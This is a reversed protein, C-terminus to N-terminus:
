RRMQYEYGKLSKIPDVQSGTLGFLYGLDNFIKASGEQQWKYPGVDRTYFGRSDNSLVYYGDYAFDKYKDVIPGLTPAGGSYILNVYERPNLFTLAEQKTGLASVLSHNILWGGANFDDSLLDGSRERMKEFRDEDDPDYGFLYAIMLSLMGIVATHAFAKKGAYKEEDTLFFSGNSLRSVLNRLLKASELMYGNNIDGTRVNYRSPSWNNVFMRTFFRRLSSFMRWLAYRDLMSKDIKGYAGQLANSTEQVRNRTKKFEEGGVDYSSDIGAKLKLIGDSGKEWADLYSIYNTKGNIIQPVKQHIMMGAFLSLTGENELWKRPSLLVSNAKKSGQGLVLFSDALDTGVSRGFETGFKEEFRGKIPDFVEILQLNVSKESPNANYVNASIDSMMKFAEVQGLAYSRKNLYKQGASEIIMQTVAGGFNKIASPFINMAFLGFVAQSQLSDILKQASSSESLLGVRTKGKFEREIFSNIAEARLNKGKKNVYTKINNTVWNYSNIKSLDKIGNEPNNVVKQLAQAIPNLEILKKQHELSYMYKLMSYPVNLSVQDVDLKYLGQVPISSIEEDFIDARVLNFQENYNIGQEFDDKASTISDKISKIAGRVKKASDNLTSGVLESKFKRFRPIDLWIKSYKTKNEQFLLHYKVMVDLAKAKEPSNKKLDFYAKNVYLDDKAGEEVTRPLWNGRNDIHKGVKLSVKSTAKDYGTRYQKKVSRRYFDNKPIRRISVDTADGSYPDIDKYTYSNYDEASAPITVNWVYIPSYVKEMMKSESNYVEKVIHNALYWEKFEANEKLYKAIFGPKLFKDANAKNIETTAFQALKEPDIREIYSNIVNIYDDTPEKSQMSALESYLKKLAIQTLQDLSNEGRITNLETFEAKELASATKSKIKTSLDIYREFQAPSLGSFGALNNQSDLIEQQLEKIRKLRNESMESGVPQGDDNRFGIVIDIIEEWKKGIDLRKSVNVPLKDTITKIKDIIQQKRKYFDENISVRTNDTLWQDVLEKFEEPNASLGQDLLDQKYQDLRYQFLGTIEKWEYFKRSEDRYKKEIKATELDDGAKITGSEDRLSALQSYKKWLLKKQEFAEDETFEDFVRRDIDAIEALINQKREYAIRGLESDYIQEKAYFEPVYEDYMYDRYFQRVVQNLQRAKDLDNVRKAEEIDFQLRDIVAQYGKWPNLFVLKSFEEAEGNNNRTVVTDEYVLDKMLDTINKDSYGADKLVPLLESIFSDKNAKSKLEVDTYANDVYVAFSSIIPDPSSAFSEVYASISNVDGRMGSLYDDITARNLKLRDWEEQTKKIEKPSANNDRLTKLKTEFHSDVNKALPSLVDELVGGVGRKYISNIIRDAQKTKESIRSFLQFLSSDTRLGADSLGNISEEMIKSWNRVLLDYYFTNSIVEKTDSMKNLNNLQDIIRNMLVDTQITTRVLSTIQKERKDLEDKFKKVKDDVTTTEATRLDSVIDQLITRGSENKIAEVFDSYNKNTRIRSLLSGANTFYRNVVKVLVDNDVQQLDNYMTQNSRMYQVVDDPTIIQTTLVFTDGLLMNSLEDITTTESLKDLKIKDGYLKRMLQKIAYIINTIFKKFPNSNQVNNVKNVAATELARVLVEEQFLQDTGDLEPYLLEVKSLTEAGEVSSIYQNYLNNFLTPNEIALSRVVPHSFEHLVTNLKFGGEVFYINNNYFFASEGNWPNTTDKTLDTAEQASIMQYGIGVQDVLKNALKTIAEQAKVNEQQAVDPFLSNFFDLQDDFDERYFSVSGDPIDKTPIIDSSSTLKADYSGNEKRKGDVVDFLFDNFNAYLRRQNDEAITIFNENPGLEINYNKLAREKLKENYLELLTISRKLEKDYTRQLAKPSLMTHIPYLVIESVGEKEALKEATFGEPLNFLKNFVGYNYANLKSSKFLLCNSM